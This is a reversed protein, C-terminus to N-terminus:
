ERQNVQCIIFFGSAVRPFWNGLRCNLQMIPKIGTFFLNSFPGAFLVSGSINIVNFGHNHLLRQISKFTFRQVHPSDSLTSPYPVDFCPGLIRRKLKHIIYDIRLRELLKGIKVKFWLFSELEFWGYGNPVTILLLGKVNLKSHLNDIITNIKNHPIHELVESAIIVDPNSDLDTIDFIKLIDANVGEQRFIRQGLEISKRDLDIGFVAYGLKALPLTIMCGTGCGFEVIKNNRKIHSLIWQLRKTHGYINEKPLIGIQNEDKM